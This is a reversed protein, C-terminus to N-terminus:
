NCIRVEKGAKHEGRGLMRIKRGKGKSRAVVGWDVSGLWQRKPGERGRVVVGLWEGLWLGRGERAM